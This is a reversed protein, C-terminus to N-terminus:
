TDPSTILPLFSSPGTGSLLGAGSALFLAADPIAAAVVFKDTGTHRLTTQPYKHPRSAGGSTQGMQLALFSLNSLNIYSEEIGEYINKVFRITSYL